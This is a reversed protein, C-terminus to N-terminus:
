VKINKELGDRGWKLWKLTQASNDNLAKLRYNATMFYSAYTTKIFVPLAKLEEKNLKHYKQYEKIILNVDAYEDFQAIFIALDVVAPDYNMCGLDLICLEGKKNKLVHERQMDGHIVSKRLKSFDIKQYESKISNILLTDEKNLYKKKYSYEKLFNVPGWSDYNRNVKFKFNHIRALSQTLSFIDKKTPRLKLFNQGEVFDMVVTYTNQTKYYYGKKAKLVRTVPVNGRYLKVLGKVNDKIIQPSKESSFVKVVFTGKVTRVKVNLEEYGVRMLTYSIVSGLSFQEAVGALHDALSVKLDVRKLLQSTIDM